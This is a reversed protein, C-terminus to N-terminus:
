FKKEIESQFVWLVTALAFFPDSVQLGDLLLGMIVLSVILVDYAIHKTM